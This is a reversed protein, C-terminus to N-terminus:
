LSFPCRVRFYGDNTFAKLFTQEIRDQADRTAAPEEDTSYLELRRGGSITVEILQTSEVGIGLM